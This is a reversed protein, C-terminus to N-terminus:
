LMDKPTRKTGRRDDISREIEGPKPNAGRVLLLIWMSGFFILVPILAEGGLLGVIVATVMLLALTQIM